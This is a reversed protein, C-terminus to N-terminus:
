GTVFRPAKLTSRWYRTVVGPFVVVAAGTNFGTPLYVTMTPRVVNTVITMPRGAVREKSETTADEPGVLPQADPVAGPWISVQVHGPSPRWAPMQACLSGSVFMVSLTLFLRKMRMFLNTRSGDTKLGVTQGHFLKVPCVAGMSSGCIM